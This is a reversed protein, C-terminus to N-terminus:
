KGELVEDFSFPATLVTAEGGAEYRWLMDASANSLKIAMTQGQKHTYQGFNIPSNDLYASYINFTQEKDTDNKINLIVNFQLNSVYSKNLANRIKKALEPTTSINLYGKKYSYINIEDKLEAKDNVVGFGVPIEFSAFSEYKKSYCEKYKAGHFITPIKQQIDILSDSPKRSDEHNNCSSIEVNLLATETKIPENLLQKLSVDKEIETKCATLALLCSTVIWLKKM